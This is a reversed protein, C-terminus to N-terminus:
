KSRSLGTIAESVKVPDTNNLADRIDARRLVEEVSRTLAKIIELAQPVSLYAAYNETSLGNRHMDQCDIIRVKISRPNVPENSSSRCEHQVDYIMFEKTKM